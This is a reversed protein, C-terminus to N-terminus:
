STTSAKLATDAWRGTASSTASPRSTLNVSVAAACPWTSRTTSRRTTAPTPRSSRASSGISCLGTAERYAVASSRTPSAGATSRPSSCCCRTLKAHRRKPPWRLSCGRAGFSHGVLHLRAGSDVLVRELLPAVGRSGVNGARDKMMWVTGTRLLGRPDLLSGGAARVGAGRRTGGIGAFANPPTPEPPALGELAGWAELFEDVSPAESAYDPDSTPRLAALVLKAADKAAARDLADAGIILEVLQSRADPTMTVLLLRLMEEREADDTPTDAAIKPGKELPVPLKFPWIVGILLPKFKTPVPLHLRARQAAYGEIFTLYKESAVKFNNNWGHSFM